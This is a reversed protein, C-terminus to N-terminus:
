LRLHGRLHRHGPDGVRGRGQAAFDDPEPGAGTNGRDDRRIRSACSTIHHIPPRSGDWGTGDWGMGVGGSRTRVYSGGVQEPTRKVLGGAGVPTAMARKGVQAHTYRLLHSQPCCAPGRGDARQMASALARCRSAIWVEKWARGSRIEAALPQMEISAHRLQPRASLARLFQARRRDVSRDIRFCWGMM